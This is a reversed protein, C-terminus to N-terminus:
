QQQAELQQGVSGDPREDRFSILLSELRDTSWDEIALKALDGLASECDLHVCEKTM